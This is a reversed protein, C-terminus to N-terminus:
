GRSISNTSDKGFVGLPLTCRKRNRRWYLSSQTRSPLMPEGYKVGHGSRHQCSTRGHDNWALVQGAVPRVPQNCVEVEM